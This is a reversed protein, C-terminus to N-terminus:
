TVQSCVNIPSEWATAFSRIETSSLLEASLAVPASIRSAALGVLVACREAGLVPRRELHTPISVETPDDGRAIPQDAAEPALVSDARRELEKITMSRLTSKGPSPLKTLLFIWEPMAQFIRYLETDTKM